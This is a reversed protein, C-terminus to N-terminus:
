KMFDGGGLMHVLWTCGVTTAISIMTTRVIGFNNRFKRAYQLDQPTEKDIGLTALTTVIDQLMGKMEKVDMKVEQVNAQMHTHREFLIAINPDDSKPM